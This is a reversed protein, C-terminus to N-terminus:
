IALLRDLLIANSSRSQGTLNYNWSKFNHKRNTWKYTPWFNKFPLFVTNNVMNSHQKCILFVPQVQFTLLSYVLFLFNWFLDRNRWLKNTLNFSWTRVPKQFIGSSTAIEFLESSAFLKSSAFLNSKAFFQSSVTCIETWSHNIWVLPYSNLNFGNILFKFSKLLLIEESLVDTPVKNLKM